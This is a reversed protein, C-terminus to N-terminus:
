TEFVCLWGRLRARTVEPHGFLFVNEGEVSDIDLEKTFFVVKIVFIMKQWRNRGFDRYWRVNDSTDGGKRIRGIDRFSSRVCM